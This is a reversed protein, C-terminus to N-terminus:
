MQAAVQLLWGAAVGGAALMLWRVLHEARGGTGFRLPRPARLRRWRRGRLMLPFLAPVGTNTLMDGGIHALCGFAVPVGLWWWGGTPAFTLLAAAALVGALTAGLAGRKRRPWLARVALGTTAFMVVGAFVLGGLLGGLAILGGTVLAFLVTHTLTRHGDLDRVDLATRTRAHLVACMRGIRRCAWKSVPGFTHAVSSSPHDCDPVLASGAAVVAGVIIVPVAVPHGAAALVACGALWGAAGSVAHSSGM